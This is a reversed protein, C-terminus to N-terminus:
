RPFRPEVITEDAVAERHLGRAQPLLRFLVPSGERHSDSLTESEGLVTVIRRV